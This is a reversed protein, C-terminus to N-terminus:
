PGCTLLYRIQRSNLGAARLEDETASRIADINGFKKLLKAKTKPGIGPIDTLPSSELTAKRKRTHHSKVSFRHAEDRVRQVLRLAPNNERLLIPNKRGPVFIRDQTQKIDKRTFASETRAKAIACVPIDSELEKLARIASALQGKGGDIIFLDPPANEKDRLRRSLTEFISAYDDQGEVTKPYYVRYRSKLPSEAAFHVLAVAPHTGQLNSVDIGEIAYPTEALSLVQQLLESATQTKEKDEFILRANQQAMGLLRLAREGRKVLLPVPAGTKQALLAATNERGKFDEALWVENPPINQTYYQEIFSRATEDDSDLVSNTKQSFRGTLFGGRIFLIIWQTSEQARFCGIVDIDKIKDTLVANQKATIKELAQIKDRVRRADEYKQQDSATKMEKKLSKLLETKKGKLFLIAQRIQLSYATDSVLDV